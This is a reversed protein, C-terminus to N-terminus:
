QQVIDLRHVQQHARSRSFRVPTSDSFQQGDLTRVTLMGATDPVDTPFGPALELRYWGARSTPHEEGHGYFTVFLGGDYLQGNRLTIQGEVIAYGRPWDDSTPPACAMTAVVIAAGFVTPTLRPTFM